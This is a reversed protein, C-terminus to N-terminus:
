RNFSRLENIVKDNEMLQQVLKQRDGTKWPPLGDSHPCELKGEEKCKQCMLRVEVTNFLPKGNPRKMTLM